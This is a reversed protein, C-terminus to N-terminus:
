ITLMKKFNNNDQTDITVLSKFLKRNIEINLNNLVNFHM